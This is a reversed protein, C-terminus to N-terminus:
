TDWFKPFTQCLAPSQTSSGKSYPIRQTPFQSRTTTRVKSRLRLFSVWATWLKRKEKSSCRLQMFHVAESHKAQTRFTSLAVPLFELGGARWPEAKRKNLMQKHKNWKESTLPGIPHVSCAKTCLHASRLSPSLAPVRCAASQSLWHLEPTRSGLMRCNTVWGLDTSILKCAYYPM